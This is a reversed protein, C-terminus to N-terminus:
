RITPPLPSPTSAPRPRLGLAQAREESMVLVAAAGDSIQSSSAATITGDEAFARPPGPLKSRRRRRPARGRRRRADRATPRRALGAAVIENDFRGADQAAAARRHSELAFSDMEERSSTGAGPSRRPPSRGPPHLRVPAPRDPRLGRRARSRHDLRDASPDHVRRGRRHRHGHRRGHGGAGRLPDAQQASGCQRDVTTGPVTDPFGAALAANRGINMAQEGVTMTCGM